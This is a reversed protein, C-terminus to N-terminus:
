FLTFLSSLKETKDVVNPKILFEYTTSFGKHSEPKIQSTEKDELWHRGRVLPQEFGAIQPCLGNPSKRKEKNFEGHHILVTIPSSDSSVDWNIDFEENGVWGMFPQVVCGLDVSSHIIKQSPKGLIELWGNM